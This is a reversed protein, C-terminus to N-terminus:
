GRIFLKVFKFLFSDQIKKAFRYTESALISEYHERVQNYLKEMQEGMQVYNKHSETIIINQFFSQLYLDEIRAEKEHLIAQLLRYHCGAKQLDPEKRAVYLNIQLSSDNKIIANPAFCRPELYPRLEDHLIYGEKLFKKMWHVLPRNNTHYAGFEGPPTVSFVIVNSADVCSRIINDEHEASVMDLLGLCLCIDYKRPSIYQEHGTGPIHKEATTQSEIEYVGQLEPVGAEHFAQLFSVGESGIAIISQPAFKNMLQPILWKGMTELNVTYESLNNQPSPFFSKKADCKRQLLAISNYITSYRDHMLVFDDRCELFAFLARRVNSGWMGMIDHLAIIGGPALHQVSLLVDALVTDTYHLGDIFIFDFPGNSECVDHGIVSIQFDTRVNVSAFTEKTSFGGAHFVIKSDVGLRQAAKRALDQTKVTTDATYLKSQMSSMEVVLPFNPDITHIRSSAPAHLAMILTSLGVFTGVELINRPQLQEIATALMASDPEPLTWQQILEPPYGLETFAALVADFAAKPSLQPNESRESPQM